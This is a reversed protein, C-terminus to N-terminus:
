KSFSEERDRMISKSLGTSYAVIDPSMKTAELDKNHDAKSEIEPQGEKTPMTEELKLFDDPKEEEELKKEQESIQESDQLM